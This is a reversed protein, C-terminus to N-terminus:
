HEVGAFERTRETLAGELAEVEDVLEKHQALLARHEDGLVTLKGRSERLSLGENLVEQDHLQERGAEYCRQEEARLSEGRAVRLHLPWWKEYTAEDM